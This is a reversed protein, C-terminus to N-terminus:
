EAGRGTLVQWATSILIKIDFAFSWNQAYYIDLKRRQEWPLDRRGSIQALGTIGSKINLIAHKQAYANIEQPILARPGVLSIDGRLVNFLQPLEDLSTKRLFKSWSGYRPDDPLYDGGDRYPKILDPRGIKEFAEEPTLGNLDSRVTQFKYVEFPQSGRTLRTQHFLVKGFIIKNLIAIILLIPSLIILAFLSVIADFGRKFVRGWGTITNQNIAMVPVNGMFLGLEIPNNMENTDNPVFKFEIFHRHAYDLLDHDITPQQKTAVQIIIDPNGKAKTIAEFTKHTTFSFRQDGVVGLLTYGSNRRQIDEIIERAAYDGGVIVVSPLNKGQHWQIWRGAHLIIRVLALLAISIGFGYVPVLKAPFITELSFYDITVFSLMAILAGLIIRLTQSFAKQEPRYTGALVFFLIIVPTLSLLSFFYPEAAVFNAVPNDSIKVRLIYALSYAALIAIIDGVLLLLTFTVSSRQKKM